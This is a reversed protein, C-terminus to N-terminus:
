QQQNHSQCVVSGDERWLSRRVDLFGCCDSVLLSRTKLGLHISQELVSQGVSRRDYYLKSKSKPPPVGWTSARDFVEMTATPPSSFSIRSDSVAFCPWSDLPVRIRFHSRQRPAAAITFSLGTRENSLTGWMLFGAVRQRYYFDPRLGWIPAKNWSLSASQGDTTVYSQRQHCLFRLHSVVV